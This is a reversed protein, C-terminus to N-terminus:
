RERRAALILICAARMRVGPDVDALLPAGRASVGLEVLGTAAALRAGPSAGAIDTELWAQVRRDGASALALRAREALLTADRGPPSEVSSAAPPRALALLETVAQVDGARALRGLAAIRLEPDQDEAVRRVASVVESRDFPAEALAQLRTSRAGGEMARVIQAVASGSMEKGADRRRLVASAAEVVGAGHGSAILIRLAEQGGSSWVQTSAWAVAIEEKLPEDGQAWLDRLANAMRGDPTPPLAALARVAETRVMPEPDLRAAEALADL